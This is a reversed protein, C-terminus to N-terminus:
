IIYARFSLLIDYLFIVIVTRDIIRIVGDPIRSTLSVLTPHVYKIILAGLVGFLLFAGLCVRGNINMIMDSYDWWRKNFIYEMWSSTIYEMTSAILGCRIILGIITKGRDSCVLIMILFSLGYIPCLPGFLFGRKTLNGSVFFCFITEYIWGITSYIIFWRFLTSLELSRIREGMKMM